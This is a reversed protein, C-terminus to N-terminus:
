PGVGAMWRTAMRLEEGDLLAYCMDCLGAENVRRNRCLLCSDIRRADAVQKRNKLALMLTHRPIGEGNLREM